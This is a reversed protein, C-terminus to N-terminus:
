HPLCHSLRTVHVGHRTLMEKFAMSNMVSFEVERAKAIVDPVDDTQGPHCMLLAKDPAFSLWQDLRHRYGDADLDFGYVGVFGTNVALGAQRCQRELTSGGLAHIVAAKLGDKLRIGALGSSPPDTSRIWPMVRYRSQIAGILQDRIIPLQHVHQHGDIFDPAQGLSQEFRDLQEDISARIRQHDLQRAYARFILKGLPMKGAALGGFSETFNLHLGKDIPLSQLRCADSGWFPGETMCSTASLRGDQALMLIARNISPSLGFDDACIGLRRQTPWEM